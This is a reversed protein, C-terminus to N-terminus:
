KVLEGKITADFSEGGAMPVVWKVVKTEFKLVKGDKAVWWTGTSSMTGTGTESLKETVKLADQDGVKEVSEAKFELKMTHEDKDAGAKIAESWTDGVAVPASPYVFLMPQLMRRVEDGAEGADSIAGHEGIKVDWDNDPMSQGGDLVLDKWSFTAEKPKDAPTEKVLSVLKMVAEHEEGGVDAKITVNWTSTTKPTLPAKLDWKDAQPTVLLAGILAITSLM